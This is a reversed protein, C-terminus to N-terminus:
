NLNNSKTVTYFHFVPLDLKKSQERVSINFQQKLQNVLLMNSTKTTM